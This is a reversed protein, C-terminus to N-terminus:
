SWTRVESDENSSRMTIKIKCSVVLIYYKLVENGKVSEAKELRSNGVSLLNQMRIQFSCKCSPLYINLDTWLQTKFVAMFGLYQYHSINIHINIHLFTSIEWTSNKLPTTLVLVFMYNIFRHPHQYAFVHVMNEM